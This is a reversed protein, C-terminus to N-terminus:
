NGKKHNFYGKWIWLRFKMVMVGKSLRGMFFYGIFLVISVAFKILESFLKSIKKLTSESKLMVAISKGIGLAQGKIYDKTLRPAGVRHWLYADPVYYVSDDHQTIRMFIDKEEGGELQNGKRGLNVNFDGSKEFIHKRYVFNAGIPYRGKTYKKIDKGNDHKAFLPLLIDPMWKPRPSDFQVNIKGGGGIAHPHTEFFNLWKQIFNASVIVDDDVFSVLPAQSEQIGRNRAYSLGQQTEKIYRINLESHQSIFEKVLVETNDSSNNDVVVIEYASPSIEEKVISQLSDLLLESRNYSCVVISILYSNTM